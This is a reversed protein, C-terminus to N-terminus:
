QSPHFGSNPFGGSSQVGGRQWASQPQFSNLMGGGEFPLGSGSPQGQMQPQQQQADFQQAHHPVAYPEVHPLDQMDLHDGEFSPITSLEEGFLGLSNMAPISSQPRFGEIGMHGGGFHNHFQAQDRSPQWVNNYGQQQRNHHVQWEGFGREQQQQQQQGGLNSHPHPNSHHHHQQQQQGGFHSSPQHQQQQQQPPRHWSPSPDAFGGRAAEGPWLNGGPQGGFGGNFNGWSPHSDATVSMDSPEAMSSASHGGSAQRSTEALEPSRQQQESSQRWGDGDLPGYGPAGTAKLMQLQAQFDSTGPPQSSGALALASDFGLPPRRQPEGLVGTTVPVPSRKYGDGASSPGARSLISLDPLTRSSRVPRRTGRAADWGGSPIPLPCDVLASAGLPPGFPSPNSLRASALLSSNSNNGTLGGTGTGRGLGSSGASPSPTSLAQSSRQLSGTYGSSAAGPSGSGGGNSFTASRNVTRVRPRKCAEIEENTVHKFKVLNRWKDKIQVGSRGLLIQLEPDTRILEWNGAGHRQVGVKLAALEEKEWVRYKGMGSEKGVLNVRRSLTSGTVKYPPQRGQM